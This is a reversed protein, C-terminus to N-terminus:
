NKLQEKIFDLIMEYKLNAAQSSDTGILIGNERINLINNELSIQIDKYEVDQEKIYRSEKFTKIM